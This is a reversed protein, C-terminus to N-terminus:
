NDNEESMFQILLEKYAAEDINFLIRSYPLPGMQDIGLDYGDRTMDLYDNFEQYDTYHLRQREIPDALLQKKRILFCGLGDAFQAVMEAEPMNIPNDFQGDKGHSAGGYANRLEGLCHVVGKSLKSLKQNADDDHNLEIVKLVNKYLGTLDEKKGVAKGYDELITKFISELFSKATDLVLSPDDERIALELRKIQDGLHALSSNDIVQGSRAEFRTLSM